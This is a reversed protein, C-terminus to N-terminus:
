SNVIDIDHNHTDRRSGLLMDVFANEAVCSMEHKFALTCCREM